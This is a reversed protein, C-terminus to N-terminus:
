HGRANDAAVPWHQAADAAPARGPAMGAPPESRVAGGAIRYLAPPVASAAMPGGFLPGQGVACGLELLRSLMAQTAIGKATVELRPDDGLGLIARVDNTGSPGRALALVCSAEMQVRDFPLGRLGALSSRGAAGGHDLAVMAGAAKLGIIFGRAVEPDGALADAQIAVTMRSPAIGSGRVVEVIRAPFGVDRILEPSVRLSLRYAHSWGKMDITAQRLVALSMASRLGSEDSGAFVSDPRLLGRVPHPWRALVEFGSVQLLRLDVVPAYCPMIEGNHIAQRLDARLAARDRAEQEALRKRRDGAAAHCGDLTARARTEPRGFAALPM